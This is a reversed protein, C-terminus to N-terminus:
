SNRCYYCTTVAYQDNEAMEINANAAEVQRRIKGWLDLEWAASLRADWLNFNEKGLNGSPDNLGRQTRRQRSYDLGLGLNPYQSSGAVRGTARSQALRSIAMKVDLNTSTMRNILSSLLPDNFLQWWSNNIAQEVPISNVDHATKNWHAVNVANKPKVFDPGVSCASLVTICSTLLLKYFPKIIM